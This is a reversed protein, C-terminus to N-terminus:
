KEFTFRITYQYTDLKYIGKYTNESPITFYNSYLVDEDGIYKQICPYNRNNFCHMIEKYYIRLIPDIQISTHDSDLELLFFIYRASDSPIVMWDERVLMLNKDFIFSSQYAANGLPMTDNEVKYILFLLEDNKTSNLSMDESLDSSSVEIKVKRQLNTQANILFSFIFAFIFLAIRIM